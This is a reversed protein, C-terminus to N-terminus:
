GHTEIDYLEPVAAICWQVVEESECTNIDFVATRKIQGIGISLAVDSRYVSIWCYWDTMDYKTGLIGVRNLNLAYNQEGNDGLFQCECWNSLLLALSLKM